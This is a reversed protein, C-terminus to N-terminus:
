REAGKSEEYLQKAPNLLVPDEFLRNFFDRRKPLPVKMLAQRLYRNTGEKDGKLAYCRAMVLLVERIELAKPSIISLAWEASDLKSEVMYNEAICVLANDKEYNGYYTDEFQVLVDPLSAKISDGAAIYRHLYYNSSDPMGLYAFTRGLQNLTQYSVEKTLATKLYALADKYDGQIVNLYGLWYCSSTEDGENLSKQLAEEAAEYQRQMILWYGIYNVVKPNDGSLKALVKWTWDSFQPYNRTQFHFLNVAFSNWGLDTISFPRIIGVAAFVCSWGIAFRYLWRVIKQRLKEEFYILMAFLIPVLALLFRIGYSDGGYNQTRWVYFSLIILIPIFTLIVKVRFIVPVCTRSGIIKMSLQSLTRSLSGRILTERENRSRFASVGGIVAFILIPTYVFLGRPGFLCNFGYVAIERFSSNVVVGSLNSKDFVAGPYIFYEPNIGFPLISGSISINVVSHIIVPPLCGIIYWLSHFFNGYITFQYIFFVVAFAIGAPPDTVAAISVSLGSIFSAAASRFGLIILFYSLFILFGSFTHSSLAVSFPLYLTGFFFLLAFKISRGYDGRKLFHLKGLLVATGAASAGSFILTLMWVLLRDNAAFDLGLKFLPFYFVAMIIPMLPTQCGYFHGDIYVKDITKLGPSDDIALTGREVLSEATAFRARDNGLSYESKPNFFAGLVGAITFLLLFLLLAPYKREGGKALNTSNM